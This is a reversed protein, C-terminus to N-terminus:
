DQSFEELYSEGEPEKFTIQINDFTILASQDDSVKPFVIVLTRSDHWYGMYTLNSVPSPSFSLLQNIDKPRSVEAQNTNNRFKM